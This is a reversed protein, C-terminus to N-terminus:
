VCFPNLSYLNFQRVPISNTMEARLQCALCSPSEVILRAKFGRRPLLTLARPSLPHVRASQEQKWNTTEMVLCALTGSPQYIDM